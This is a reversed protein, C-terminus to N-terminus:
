LKSPDTYNWHHENNRFEEPLGKFDIYEKSITDFLLVKGTKTNIQVLHHDLSIGNMNEDSKPTIIIANDLSNIRYKYSESPHIHGHLYYFEKAYENSVKKLANFVYVYYRKKSEKFPPCHGLVFLPKNKDIKKLINDLNYESDLFPLFLFQLNNISRIEPNEIFELRSNRLLEVLKSKCEPFTKVLFVDANGACLILKKNFKEINKLQEIWADTNIKAFWEKDSLNVDSFDNKAFAKWSNKYREVNKIFDIFKIGAGIDGLCVLNDYKNLIKKLSEINHLDSIINLIVM